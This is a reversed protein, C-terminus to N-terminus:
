SREAMFWTDSYGKYISRKQKRIKERRFMEKKAIELQVAERRNETIATLRSKFKTRVTKV